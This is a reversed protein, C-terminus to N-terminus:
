VKASATFAANLADVANQPQTGNGQTLALTMNLEKLNKIEAKLQTIMADQKDLLAILKTNDSENEERDLNTEYKSLDVDQEKEKTDTNEETTKKETEDMNKEERRGM